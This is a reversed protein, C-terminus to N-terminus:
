PTRNRRERDESEGVLLFALAVFAIGALGLLLAGITSALTSRGALLAVVGGLLAVVGVAATFVDSRTITPM